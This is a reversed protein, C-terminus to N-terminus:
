MSKMMSLRIAALFALAEGATAKEGALGSGGCRQEEVRAVAVALVGVPMEGAIGPDELGISIGTKAIEVIGPAPGARDGLRGAPAMAPAFEEHQGIEAFRRQSDFRHATNVLDERDFAFDVGSRGLPPERGALFPDPRQDAPEFFPHTGFAGPQRTVGVDGLCEIVHEFAPGGEGAKEVVAAIQRDFLAASRARRPIARPRRAHSNAPESRPPSRAAAIYVRMAVAFSLPRSGCAQSASTSRRM